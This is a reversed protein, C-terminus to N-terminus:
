IYLLGIYIKGLTAKVIARGVLQKHGLPIYLLALLHGLIPIHEVVRLFIDMLNLATGM